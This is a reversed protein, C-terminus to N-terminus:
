ITSIGKLVNLRYKNNLIHICQDLCKISVYKPVSPLMVIKSTSNSSLKGILEIQEKSYCKDTANIGGVVNNGHGPENISFDM